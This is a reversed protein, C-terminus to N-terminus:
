YEITNRGPATRVSQRAAIAEARVQQRTLQSGRAVNPLDVDNHELEGNVRAALVDAKVDARTRGFEKSSDTMLTGNGPLDVDNHNLEGARQAKLVSARVQARTTTSPADQYQQPTYLEGAQASISAAGLLGALLFSLKSMITEKAQLGRRVTAAARFPTHIRRLL